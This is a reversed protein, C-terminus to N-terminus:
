QGSVVQSVQMELERYISEFQETSINDDLTSIESFSRNIRTYIPDPPPDRDRLTEEFSPPPENFSTEVADVSGPNLNYYDDTTHEIHPATEQM